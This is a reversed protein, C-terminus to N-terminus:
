TFLFCHKEISYLHVVAISFCTLTTSPYINPLTTTVVTPALSASLVPSVQNAFFMLTDTWKPHMPQTELGHRQRM